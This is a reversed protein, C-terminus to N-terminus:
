LLISKLHHQNILGAHYAVCFVSIIPTTYILIRKIYYTSVIRLDRLYEILISM